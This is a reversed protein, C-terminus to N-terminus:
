VIGTKKKREINEKLLEVAQKWRKFIPKSTHGKARGLVDERPLKM